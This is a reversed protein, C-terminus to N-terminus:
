RAEALHCVVPPFSISINISGLRHSANAMSVASSITKPTSLMMKMEMRTPRKGGSCRSLARRRPRPKAINDRKAKSNEKLQTILKVASKNWRIPWPM